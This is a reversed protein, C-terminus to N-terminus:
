SRRQGRAIGLFRAYDARGPRGKGEAINVAISFVATRMQRAMEYREHHPLTRALRYVEMGLEMARQWVLLNRYSGRWSNGNM